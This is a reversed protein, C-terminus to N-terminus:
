SHPPNLLYTLNGYMYKLFWIQIQCKSKNQNTNALGTSNNVAAKFAENNQTDTDSRKLVPSDKSPLIM